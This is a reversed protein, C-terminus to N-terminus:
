SRTGKKTDLDTWLKPCEQQPFLLKHLQVFFYIFFGVSTVRSLGPIEKITRDCSVPGRTDRHPGVGDWGAEPDAAYDDQKLGQSPLCM